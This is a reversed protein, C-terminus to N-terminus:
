SGQAISCGPRVSGLARRRRISSRWGRVSGALGGGASCRRMMGIAHSQRSAGGFAVATFAFAPAAAGATPGGRATKPPPAGASEDAADTADACEEDPADTRTRARRAGRARTSQSSCSRKPLPAPTWVTLRIACRRESGSSGDDARSAKWSTLPRPPTAARASLRPASTAPPKSADPDAGAEPASSAPASADSGISRTHPALSPTSVSRRHSRSKGRM